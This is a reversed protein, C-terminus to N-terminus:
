DETLESEGHLLGIIAEIEREQIAAIVEQAKLREVGHKELKEEIERIVMKEREDKTDFREMLEIISNGLNDLKEYMGDVEVRSSKLMLYLEEVKARLEEIVDGQRSIIEDREGVDSEYRKKFDALEKRLEVKYKKLLDVDARLDDNASKLQDNVSKSDSIQNRLIFYAIVGVLLYPSSTLLIKIADEM